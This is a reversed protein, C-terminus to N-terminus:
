RLNGIARLQYTGTTQAVLTGEADHVEATLLFEAKGTETATATLAAVTAEDISATARVNSRVPRVFDITMSKVVPLFKSMDFTSMALGGGLVEAVTFLVGAYMTGLHNSNGEVPVEAAVKGPALDVFRVGMSHVVPITMELAKNAFEDVDNTDQAANETM